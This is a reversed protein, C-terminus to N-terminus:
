VSAVRSRLQGLRTAVVAEAAELTQQHGTVAGLFSDRDLSYLDLDTRAHVSATRPVNHLLAIEGFCQGAGLTAILKGASVVEADGSNIVYFRDGPEGEVLVQTAAAATTHVLRKALAELVPVPLAAFMPLGRLLTLETSPVLVREDLRSLARWFMLTLAPLICGTAILAGRVGVGSALAAGIPAGVAITAILLFELIGFVRSLVEDPVTRQLLTLGGVDVLTNGVGVAALLVIAAWLHPWAAVLAIPLGWLWLGIAFYLSLRRNQVLLVAIGAGILGGVGLASTLYGVGARGTHLLELATVVVLVNLIGCVLTQASYLGLILRIARDTAATRLGAGVDGLIRALSFRSRETAPAADMQSVLLGSWAFAAACLGVVTKADALALLLGGLAPGAFSGVSEVTSSVVNAATLDDASDTLSPLIAAQAPRFSASSLSVVVLLAYIVFHPAGVWMATATGVLSVARIADSTVMVTRRPYRDALVSAFPSALAWPLLMLVGVAAVASPGGVQYAYVAIAIKFAWYGIVSGGLALELRAINGNRAVRAFPQLSVQVRAILRRM